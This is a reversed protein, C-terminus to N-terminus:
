DGYGRMMTIIGVMIVAMIAAQGVMTVATIVVLVAM